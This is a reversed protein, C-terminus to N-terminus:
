KTHIQVRHSRSYRLLYGVPGSNPIALVSFILSEGGLFQFKGDRLDPRILVIQNEERLDPKILFIQNKERLDPKILFIQNEERLDPKWLLSSTEMVFIQNEVCLNLKWRYSKTEKVFFYIFNGDCPWMLTETNKIGVAKVGSSEMLWWFDETGIVM